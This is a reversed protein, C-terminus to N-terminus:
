RPAAKVVFAQLLKVAHKRAATTLEVPRRQAMNKTGKQHFKSYPLASGFVMHTPTSEWMQGKAGVATLSKRLALTAHLIKPDLGARRKYDITVQKLKAWGGSAHSGQSSFQKKEEAVLYKRIEDWVPRADSAHEGFRLLDRAVQVDGDVEFEFRM